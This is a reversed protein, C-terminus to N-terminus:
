QEPLGLCYLHKRGRLFIQSGSAALSAFTADDLQNETLKDFRRAASIVTCLGTTNLFFIRGEAAIPSAKYQGPLRQKWHLTGFRADLCRAMGDDAVFFLLDNWLVPSSSDPTGAEYSWLVDRPTLEIVSAEKERRSGVATEGDLGSLKVALMPKRMGRTCYVVDGAFTPNSNTRGGLLKPLLWQQRGTLPDYGDLQSAGMVVLQAREGIKMVLPTTSSDCDEGSANTMRPTKWKVHGDRIDHAIVYSESKKGGLDALSDQLCTSIVQGQHLVPSGAHGWWSTYPGYDDQLNRQWVINGDFDLGALTGDGFHVVLFKGDTVPSPAAYNMWEPFTQTGRQPKESRRIPRAKAIPKEWVVKGTRKDIRLALLKGDDTHSTVFVADGWIAPTSNGWEPLPCKWRVNRNENWIIPLNRATALGTGEPGRWQPWDAAAPLAWLSLCAAVWTAIRVNQASPIM